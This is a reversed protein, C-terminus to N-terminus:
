ETINLYDKADTLFDHIKNQTDEDITTDQGYSALFDGYSEASNSDEISFSNELDYLYVYEETPGSKISLNVSAFGQANEIVANSVAAELDKQKGDFKLTINTLLKDNANEVTMSAIGGPILEYQGSKYVVTSETIEIAKADEIPANAVDNMAIESAATSSEMETNEEEMPANTTSDASGCGCLAITILLISLLTKKKM